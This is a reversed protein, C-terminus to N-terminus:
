DEPRTRARKVEGRRRKQEIRKRDASKPPRTPRRPAPEDLASQLLDRLRELAAERNRHQSRFQQAKIVIGGATVRSDDLAAVRRRVPEPLSACEEFAFRLQVATAVKNVNQGGAGRARTATIEIDAMPISITDSIRLEDLEGADM